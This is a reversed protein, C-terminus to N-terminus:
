QFGVTHQVGVIHQAQARGSDRSIVGGRGPSLYPCSWTSLHIQLWNLSRSHTVHAPVECSLRIESALGTRGRPSSNGWLRPHRAPRPTLGPLPKSTHQPQFTAM